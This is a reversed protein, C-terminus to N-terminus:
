GELVAVAAAMEGTHTISLHMASGGLETMRALAQGTLVFRPAGSEDHAVAIDKLPLAIGCGLAKLGAEKAAFHGALSQAAGAGRGLIYAQEAETFFRPLFGGRALADRMRPVECLDIGIGLIM